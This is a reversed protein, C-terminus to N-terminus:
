LTRKYKARAFHNLVRKWVGYVHVYVASVSGVKANIAHVPSWLRQAGMNDTLYRKQLKNTAQLKHLKCRLDGVLFKTELFVSFVM